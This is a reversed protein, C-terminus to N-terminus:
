LIEGVARKTRKVACPHTPHNQSVCECFNLKMYIDKTVETKTVETKTVCIEELTLKDFDCAYEANM